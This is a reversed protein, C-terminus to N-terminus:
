NVEKRDEGLRKLHENIDEWDIDEPDEADEDDLDELAEDVLDYGEPPEDIDVVLLVKTEEWFLRICSHGYEVRDPEPLGGKQLMERADRECQIKQ